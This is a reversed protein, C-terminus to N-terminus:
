EQDKLFEEYTNYAKDKTAPGAPTTINPNPKRSWDHGALGSALNGMGDAIVQQQAVRANIANTNAIQSAQNAGAAEGYEMGLLTAQRDMKASQVWQAGGREAMDAASAGQAMLAQNRSEQQGISASIRQTALQGQNAMAQALGAVGSGGAAGRMGQMINARQQSMQEAQFQAQQQNVTLDEYPNEMNAYENKIEMSRYAEKEKDLKAQAKAQATKADEAQGEALDRNKQSNVYNVGAGVVGVVIAGWSM